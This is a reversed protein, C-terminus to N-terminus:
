RAVVPLVHVPGSFQYRNVQLVLSSGGLVLHRVQKNRM